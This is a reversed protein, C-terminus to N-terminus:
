TDSMQTSVQAASKVAWCKLLSRSKVQSHTNHEQLSKWALWTSYVWCNLSTRALRSLRLRVIFRFLCTSILSNSVSLMDILKVLSQLTSIIILVAFLPRRRIGQLSQPTSLSIISAAAPPPPTTWSEDILFGCLLGCGVLRVLQFSTALGPQCGPNGVLKWSTRRTPQPRLQKTTSTHRDSYTPSFNRLRDSFNGPSM